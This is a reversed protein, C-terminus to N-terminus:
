LTKLYDIIDKIDNESLQVQPPMFQFPKVLQIRINEPTADKKSSPLKPNKLIGKLGPGMKHETNHANHCHQCWKEFLDKGKKNLVPQSRAPQKDTIEAKQTTAHRAASVAFYYGGSGAVLLVTLCFITLGFNVAKNIFKRYVRVFLVKLALMLLVGIALLSHILVRTSMMGPSAKLFFYCYYCLVLLWAIFIYGNIKHIQRLTQPAFRSQGKDMLELMSFLAIVAHGLIILSLVSKLALTM